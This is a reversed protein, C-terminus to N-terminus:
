VSVSVMVPLSSSQRWEPGHEEVPTVKPVDSLSLLLLGKYPATPGSSVTFLTSCLHGAGDQLLGAPQEKGLVSAEALVTLM